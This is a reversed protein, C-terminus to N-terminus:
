SMFKTEKPDKPTIDNFERNGVGSPVPSITPNYVDRDDKEIPKHRTKKTKNQKDEEGTESEMKDDGSNRKHLRNVVREVINNESKKQEFVQKLSNSYKDLLKDIDKNITNLKSYNIKYDKELGRKINHDEKSKVEQSEMEHIAILKKFKGYDEAVMFKNAYLLPNRATIIKEKLDMKSEKKFDNRCKDCLGINDKKAQQFEEETFITLCKQCTDHPLSIGTLQTAMDEEPTSYTKYDTINKKDSYKAKKENHKFIIDLMKNDLFKKGTKTFSIHKSALPMETGPLEFISEDKNEDIIWNIQQLFDNMGEKNFAYKRNLNDYIYKVEQIKGGKIPVKVTASHREGNKGLLDVNFNIEGEWMTNFGNHWKQVNSAEYRINTIPIKIKGLEREIKKIAGVVSNFSDREKGTGRGMPRNEDEQKVSQNVLDEIGPVDQYKNMEDFDVRVNKEEDALKVTAIKKEDDIEQIIAYKNKLRKDRSYLIVADGIKFNKDKAIQM